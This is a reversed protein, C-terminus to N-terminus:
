TGSRGAVATSNDSDDTETDSPVPVDLWHPLEEPRPEDLTPLAFLRERVMHAAGVAAADEGEVAPEVPCGSVRPDIFRGALEGDLLEFIRDSWHCLDGGYVLAAPRLMSVPTSLSAFLEFLPDETHGIEGPMGSRWAVSRFEGASFDHSYHVEGNIVLGTGVRLLGRAAHDTGASTPVSERSRRATVALLNRPQAADHDGGSNRALAGWALANADNEILLPLDEPLTCLSRFPLDHLGFSESVLIRNRFPDVTAPLAVGIGLLREEMDGRLEEHLAEAASAMLGSIETSGGASALGSV